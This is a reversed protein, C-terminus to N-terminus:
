RKCYYVRGGYVVGIRFTRNREEATRHVCLWRGLRGALRAV